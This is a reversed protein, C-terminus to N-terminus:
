FLKIPKPSPNQEVILRECYARKEKASMKRPTAGEKRHGNHYADASYHNATASLWGHATVEKGDITGRVILVDDGADLIEKIEVM